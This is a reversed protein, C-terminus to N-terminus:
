QVTVEYLLLRDGLLSGDDALVPWRQMSQSNYLGVEVWYSGPSAQPTITFRYVQAFIDGPEWEWPPVDLGDYQGLIQSESDLLHAFSALPEYVPGQAQWYVILIVEGGPSVHPTPLVYGLLAVRDGFSAPLAVFQRLEPTNFVLEPSVVARSQAGAQNLRHAVSEGAPLEFLRYAPRDSQPPTQGELLLAASSLWQDALHPQPSTFDAILYRRTKSTSPLILAREGNYWRAELKSRALLREALMIARDDPFPSSVWMVGEFGEHDLDRFAETLSAQYIDRVDPQAPWIGFLAGSTSFASFLFVAAMGLGLVLRGRRWTRELFRWLAAGGLGLFGYAAPLAGIGRVTSPADPTLMSSALGLPLWLLLLVYRPSRWKWLSLLLGLFILAGSFPDFAPRGSVNYRWNPDGTFAFMGFTELSSQVFPALNGARLETLLGGLQSIRTEPAGPHVQMEYVFPAAVLAAFGVTVLGAVAVTRLPLTRRLGLYIFFLPFLVFLVRAATFIYWTLGAMFGALLLHPWRVGRSGGQRGLNLGRWLFYVALSYALPLLIGRLSVRSYFVPWMTVALIASSICAARRGFLGRVLVHVVPILLLGAFRTVLRAGFPSLGWIQMSIALLYMFLPEASYSITWHLPREGKIILEGLQMMRLEDHSPGPPVEQLRHFRFFTAVLLVVVLVVLELFFASRPLHARPDRDRSM